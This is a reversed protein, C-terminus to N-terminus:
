KMRKQIEKQITNWQGSVLKVMIHKTNEALGNKRVYKDVADEVMTVYKHKTIDNWRKSSLIKDKLDAYVVSSHDLMKERMARGKKTTNLWVFGAGLLSGLLFGKKFRGM